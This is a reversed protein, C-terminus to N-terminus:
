GNRSYFDMWRIFSSMYKDFYNSVAQAQALKIYPDPDTPTYKLIYNQADIVNNKLRIEEQFFLICIKNYLDDNIMM